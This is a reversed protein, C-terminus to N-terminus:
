ASGRKRKTAAVRRKPEPTLLVERLDSMRAKSLNSKMIWAVDKDSSRLWKELYPQANRPAAAAAVSWGYGLAQRLVRFGEGRRDDSTAVSRTIQDLM